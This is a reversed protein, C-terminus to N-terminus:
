FSKELRNPRRETLATEVRITGDEPFPPFRQPGGIREGRNGEIEASYSLEFGGASMDEIKM